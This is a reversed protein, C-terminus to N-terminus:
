IPPHGAEHFQLASSVGAYGGGQLWVIRPRAINSLPLRHSASHFSVEAKM